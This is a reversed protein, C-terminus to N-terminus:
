STGWRAQSWTRLAARQTSDLNGSGALIAHIRGNLKEAGSIASGLFIPYGAGTNLTVTNTLASNGDIYLSDVTGSYQILALVPTTTTPPTGGAAWNTSWYHNGWQNTSGVRVALAYAQGSSQAGYQFVHEYVAANTTVSSIVAAVWRTSAGSPGMWTGRMYGSAFLAAPLGGAASAVTTITTGTPADNVAGATGSIEDRWINVWSGTRTALREADLYYECVVPPAISDLSWVDTTLCAYVSGTRNGSTVRYTDGVTCTAPLSAYTGTGAAGLGIAVRMASSDSSATVLSSPLSWAPAGAVVGLAYGTSGIPLRAPVGSARYILDGNTTMVTAQIAGTVRTDNGQTATGASTGYAVAFSRDAALTGGGTLGTGATLTRTTPVGGGTSVGNYRTTQAIPLGVFLALALALLAGLRRTHSTTTM